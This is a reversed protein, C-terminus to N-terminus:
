DGLIFQLPVSYKFLVCIHTFSLWKAICRLNACCPLDVISRNFFFLCIWLRHSRLHGATLGGQIERRLTNLKRSGLFVGSITGWTKFGGSCKPPLTELFSLYALVSHSGFSWPPLPWKHGRPILLDTPPHSLLLLKTPAGQASPTLRSYALLLNGLSPKLFPPTLRVWSCLCICKMSWVHVQENLLYKRLMEEMGAEAKPAQFIDTHLLSLPGQAGPFKYELYLWM